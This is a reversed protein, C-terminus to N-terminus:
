LLLNQSWFLVSLKEAKQQQVWRARPPTQPHMRPEQPIPHSVFASTAAAAFTPAQAARPFRNSILAQSVQTEKTEM